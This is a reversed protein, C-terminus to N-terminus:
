HVIYTNKRVPELKWNLEKAVTPIFWNDPVGLSKLMVRSYFKSSSDKCFKSMIEAIIQRKTLIM